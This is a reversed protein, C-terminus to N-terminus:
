MNRIRNYFVRANAARQPGTGDNIGEFVELFLMAASTPDTAKKFADSQMAPYSGSNMEKIAYMAQGYMSTVDLGLSQCYNWLGLKRTYWTWQAFGYGGGGTTDAAFEWKSMQGNRIRSAYAINFADNYGGFHSQVTIPCLGSEWQWNGLIAATAADSYGAEAFLYVLSEFDNTQPVSYSDGSNKIIRRYEVRRGNAAASVRRLKVGSSDPSNYITTSSGGGGCDIQMPVGNIEGAYIGVHNSISSGSSYYLIIDGPRADSQSVQQGMGQMEGTWTGINYGFKAYVSHVFGSCDAYWPMNHLDWTRGAGWAYHTWKFGQYGRTDSIGHSVMYNYYNQSFKYAYMVIARGGSYLVKSAANATATVSGLNYTSEKKTKSKVSVQGKQRNITTTADLDIDKEELLGANAKELTNAAKKAKSSDLGWLTDGAVAGGDAMLDAVLQSNEASMYVSCYDLVMVCAAIIVLISAMFTLVTSSGKEWFELQKFKCKSTM